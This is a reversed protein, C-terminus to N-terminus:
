FIPHLCQSCLEILMILLRQCLDGGVFFIAAEFSASVCSDTAGGINTKVVLPILEWNDM